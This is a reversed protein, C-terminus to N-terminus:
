SFDIIEADKSDPHMSLTLGWVRQVLEAHRQLSAMELSADDETRFHLQLTDGVVRANLARVNGRYGRDLSNALRLLMSLTTVRERMEESLRMYETHSRKPASRRHYRALNALFQREDETFAPLDANLIIYQSHKHFSTHSVVRGVDHVMGAYEVFAREKDTGNHVAHLDDFLRQALAAVHRPHQESDSLKKGLLTCARRRADPETNALRVGARNRELYDVIMGERLAADCPEYADGGFTDILTHLLEGGEVIADRRKDDLGAVGGREALTMAAVRDVSSRLKEQTIAQPIPGNPYCIHALTRASGSTGLIVDVRHEKLLKALPAAADRIHQRLAEREKETTPDSLLFGERLRHLGIKLSRIILPRRRDALIIEVSGGGIDIIVATRQGFDFIERAGLYILRGEEEGSIVQARIGCETAVRDMFERGNRAERVASTAVAIVDHVGHNHALKAFRHLAGIGREQAADSLFGTSLTKEGLRVMEKTRDITELEGDGGIRAIIMHVSNSGIDIAALKM